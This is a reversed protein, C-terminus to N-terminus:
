LVNSSMGSLNRLAKGSIFFIISKSFFLSSYNNYFCFTFDNDDPIRLDDKVSINRFQIAYFGSIYVFRNFIVGFLKGRTINNLQIVALFIFQDFIKIPEIFELMGSNCRM